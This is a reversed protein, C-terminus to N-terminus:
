RDGGRSKAPKRAQPKNRSARTLQGLEIPITIKTLLTFILLGVAWVGLSVFIEVRTPSYDFMEGVPTPIFGPIILGMGKEIWVGVVALVCAV